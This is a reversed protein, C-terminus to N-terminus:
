LTIIIAAPERNALATVSIRSVVHALFAQQIAFRVELLRGGRGHRPDSFLDWRLLPTAEEFEVNFPMRRQQLEDGGRRAGQKPDPNVGVVNHGPELFYHLKM